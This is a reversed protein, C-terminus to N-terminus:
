REWTFFDKAAAARRPDIKIMLAPLDSDGAYWRRLGEGGGAATFAALCIRDM